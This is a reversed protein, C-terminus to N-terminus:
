ITPTTITSNNKSDNKAHSMALPSVSKEFIKEIKILAIISDPNEHIIINTITCPQTNSWM